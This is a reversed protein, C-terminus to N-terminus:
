SASRRWPHDVPAAREIAGLLDERTVGARHWIRLDQVRAPPLVIRVDSCRLRVVDALEAAGRREQPKADSVIVVRRPQREAVVTQVLRVGSNCSPRGIADLGLDLAVATDTAGECILLLDPHGLDRPMFLGDTGGAHSFKRGGPARYRLNTCRESAECMPFALVRPFAPNVGARLRRLSVTTVGVEVALPRLLAEPTADIRRLLEDPIAQIPHLAFSRMRPGPRPARRGDMAIGARAALQEVAAQFSLGDRQQLLDFADGHWGCGFCHAHDDYITFSPTREAHFPCLAVLNRGSRRLAVGQEALLNAISIRARIADLTERSFSM